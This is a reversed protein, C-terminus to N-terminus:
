TSQRENRYIVGWCACTIGTIAGLLGFTCGAEAASLQGAQLDAVVPSVGFYLGMALGFLGCAVGIVEGIKM